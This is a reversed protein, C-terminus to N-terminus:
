NVSVAHREIRKKGQTKDIISKLVMPSKSDERSSSDKDSSISSYDNVKDIKLSESESGKLLRKSEMLKQSINAIKKYSNRSNLRMRLENRKQEENFGYLGLLENIATEADEGFEQSISFKLMYDSDLM